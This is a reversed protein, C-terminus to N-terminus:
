CVLAETVGSLVIQGGHALDRLRATRNITPGIYNADDRLPVEGTHV